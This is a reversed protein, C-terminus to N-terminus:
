GWSRAWLSAPFSVMEMTPKRLLSRINQASRKSLWLLSIHTVVLSPVWPMFPRTVSARFSTRFFCGSTLSTTAMPGSTMIFAQASIVRGWPMLVRTESFEMMTSPVPM